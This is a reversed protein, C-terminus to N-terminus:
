TIVIFSRRKRNCFHYKPTKATLYLCLPRELFLLARSESRLVGNTASFYCYCYSVSKLLISNNPNTNKLLISNNLNPYSIIDKIWHSRENTSHFIVRLFRQCPKPCCITDFIFIYYNTGDFAVRGVQFEPFPFCLDSFM